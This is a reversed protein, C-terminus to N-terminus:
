PSFTSKLPETFPFNVMLVVNVVPVESEEECCEKKFDIM